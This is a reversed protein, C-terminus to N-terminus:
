GKAIQLPPRLADYIEQQNNVAWTAAQTRNAVRIKRLLARVRVKVTTEAIQLKFAIAKNSAGDVLHRLIEGERFSLAVERPHLLPAGETRQPVLHILGVDAQDMAPDRQRAVPFLRQGLMVLEISKLLVEGTIDDHLLAEVDLIAIQRIVRSSLDKTLVVHRVTNPALNFHARLAGIESFLLKAPIDTGWIVADPWIPKDSKLFAQACPVAQVVGTGNLLINRLGERALRSRQVLM